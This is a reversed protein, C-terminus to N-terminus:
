LAKKLVKLAKTADDPATFSIHIVVKRGFVVGNLGRMSIGSDGLARAAKACLGAKDPGEIRLAFLDSPKSLGAAKATKSSSKSLAVYLTGSDGGSRRALMFDCNDKGKALPALTDALGGPRDEIGAEWIDVKKIKYPM